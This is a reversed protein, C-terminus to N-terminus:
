FLYKPSFYYILFEYSVIILQKDRHRKYDRSYGMIEHEVPYTTDEHYIHPFLTIRSHSRSTPFISFKRSELIIFLCERKKIEGSNLLCLWKDKHPNFYITNM